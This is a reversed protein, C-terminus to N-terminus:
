WEFVPDRLRSDETAFSRSHLSSRTLKRLKRGYRAYWRSSWDAPVKCRAGADARPIRGRLCIPSDGPAADRSGAPSPAMASDTELRPQEVCQNKTRPRGIKADIAPDSAM